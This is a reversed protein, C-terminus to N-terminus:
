LGLAKKNKENNYWNKEKEYIKEPTSESGCIEDIKMNLIPYSRKVLLTIGVRRENNGWPFDVIDYTGDYFKTRLDIIFERCGDIRLTDHFAIVGSNSLKPYVIDFDNKVGIYSHCGDIFCFDIENHEMDILEKFEPSRTNIKKLKFNYCGNSNLFNECFKQTSLKGFQNQLGHKDWLDYGFVYGGTQKAAECLFKTTAATAVGIEVINKFQNLIIISKFLEGQQLANKNWM